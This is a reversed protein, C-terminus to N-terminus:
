FVRTYSLTWNETTPIYICSNTNVTDFNKSLQCGGLRPQLSLNLSSKASPIRRSALISLNPSVKPLNEL